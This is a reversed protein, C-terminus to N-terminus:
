LIVTCTNNKGGVLKEDGFFEDDMENGDL